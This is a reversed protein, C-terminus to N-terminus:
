SCITIIESNIENLTNRFLKIGLSQEYEEDQTIIATDVTKSNHANKM